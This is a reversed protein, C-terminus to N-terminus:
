SDEAKKRSRWHNCVRNQPDVTASNEDESQTAQNQQIGLPPPVVPQQQRCAHSSSRPNERERSRSRESRRSRNGQEASPPSSDVITFFVEWMEDDSEVTVMPQIPPEQPVPVHLNEGELSRSRQWKREGQPPQDNKSMVWQYQFLDLNPRHLDRIRTYDSVRHIAQKLEKEVGAPSPAPPWGAPIDPPGPPGPPQHPKPPAPPQPDCPVELDNFFTVKPPSPYNTNDGGESELTILQLQRGLVEKWSVVLTGRACILHTVVSISNPYLVFGWALQDQVPKRVWTRLFFAINVVSFKITQWPGFVSPVTAM